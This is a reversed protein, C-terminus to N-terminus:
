QQHLRYFMQNGGLTLTVSNTGSSSTVTDPVTEWAGGLASSQELIFTGAPTPWSLTITNASRTASLRVVEPAGISIGYKAGLYADVSARDSASLASAFILIESIDGKMRTLFDSRTGIGLPAAPDDITSVSLTGSGNGVGDLYHNVSTGKQSVSIVHPVGSTPSNIGSIKVFNTGDGRYYTMQGTGAYTYFDFPAPKNVTTKGVIENHNAFDVFSAVAYITLDGSIGLSPTPVCVLYNTIGDFRITPQGNYVNSVLL